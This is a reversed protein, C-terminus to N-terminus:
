VRFMNDLSTLMTEEKVTAGAIGSMAKFWSSKIHNMSQTVELVM